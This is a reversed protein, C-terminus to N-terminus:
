NVIVQEGIVKVDLPRGPVPIEFSAGTALEVATIGDWGGDLLYGGSLFAWTGAHNVDIKEHPRSLPLVREALTRTNVVSLSPGQTAGGAPGTGVILLKDAGLTLAVGHQHTDATLPSSTYQGTAPNMNILVKGQYPLWLNGNGALGAYHPKDYAGLGLPAAEMRRATMAVVDVATVSYSDHDVAYVENAPGGVVDFPRVGVEVLGVFALAKTDFVEVVSPRGPVYLGVSVTRGARSLGIGMGGPRYEGYGATAIPTQYPVFATLSRSETDVVALGRATSVYIEKGPGTAIGWPSDGVVVPTIAGHAVDIFSVTNSAANTTVLTQDPAPVDQQRVAPSATKQPAGLGAFGAAGLVLIILLTLRFLSM